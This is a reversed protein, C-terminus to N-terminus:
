NAVQKIFNRSVIDPSVRIAAELHSVEYQDIERVELLTIDGAPLNTSTLSIILSINLIILKMVANQWLATLNGLAGAQRVM